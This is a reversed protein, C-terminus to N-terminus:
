TWKRDDWNLLAEKKEEDAMRLGWDHSWLGSIPKEKSTGKKVIRTLKKNQVVEWLIYM